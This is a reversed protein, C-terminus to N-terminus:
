RDARSAGDDPGQLGVFLLMGVLYLALDWFQEAANTLAGHQTAVIVMSSYLLAVCALNFVTARQGFYLQTFQVTFISVILARTYEAPPTTAYVVAFLLLM